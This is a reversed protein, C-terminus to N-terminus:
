IVPLIVRFISGEKIQSYVFIEGQHLRVSREVIFLGLGDRSEQCTNTACYFPHFIQELEREPIGIGEDKVTFIIKQYEIDIDLIVINKHESYQLANILLNQLINQILNRDILVNISLDYDTLIPEDFLSLIINRDPFNIQLYNILNRCISVIDLHDCHLAYQPSSLYHIVQIKKFLFQVDSLSYNNDTSAKRVSYDLKDTLQLLFDSDFWSYAIKQPHIPKYQHNKIPLQYLEAPKIRQSILKGTQLDQYYSELIARVTKKTVKEGLIHSLDKWLKAGIMKILSISCYCSDAIEEYSQNLCVGRLLNIQISNLHENKKQVFLQDVLKITVEIDM